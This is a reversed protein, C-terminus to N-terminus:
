MEEVTIKNQKMYQRVTEDWVHELTKDMVFTKFSIGTTCHLERHDYILNIYLGQIEEPKVKLGHHQILWSTNEESLQFVLKFRVPLKKGKIIAFAVAKVESWLCLERGQLEDWEETDFYPRNLYGGLKFESFTVIESDCLYFRDFMSGNFIEKMFNKIDSISLAIM